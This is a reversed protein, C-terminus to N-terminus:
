LIHQQSCPTTAIQKIIDRDLLTLSAASDMYCLNVCLRLVTEVLLVSSSALLGTVMSVLHPQKLLMQLAAARFRDEESSNLTSETAKFLDNLLLAPLLPDRPDSLSLHLRTM